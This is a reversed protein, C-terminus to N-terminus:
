AAGKVKKKGFVKQIFHGIMAEVQKTKLSHGKGFCETLKGKEMDITFTYYPVDVADSKRIFFTMKSMNIHMDIYRNGSGVCHGLTRGEKIFDMIGKPMVVALGKYEMEYEDHYKEYIQRLATDKKSNKAVRLQTAVNDHAKVIDKPFLERKDLTERKTVEKTMRIYDLYLSKLTGFPKKTTLHQKHFYGIMKEYSMYVRLPGFSNRVYVAGEKALDRIKMFLEDNVWCDAAQLYGLEERTPNWRRCAHIFNKDLKFVTEFDLAKPLDFGYEALRTFDHKILRETTERNERMSHRILRMSVKQGDLKQLSEGIDFWRELGKTYVFAREVGSFRADTWSHMIANYKYARVGREQMVEFYNTEYSHIYRREGLTRKVTTSILLNADKADYNFLVKAKDAVSEATMYRELVAQTQKGCIECQYQSKHKPLTEPKHAKGCAMCWVSKDKRIISKHDFVKEDTWNSIETPLMLPLLDRARRVREWKAKRQKEKKKYNIDAIESCIAAGAKTHYRENLFGTVLNDTEVDSKREEFFIPNNIKWQEEDNLTIYNKRDFFMRYALGDAEWVFVALIEGSKHLTEVAATLIYEHRTAKIRPQVPQITELEKKVLM